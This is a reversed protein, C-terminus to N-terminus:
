QPQSAGQSGYIQNLCRAILTKEEDTDIRAIAPVPLGAATKEDQDRYYACFDELAPEGACAEAGCAAVRDELSPYPGNKTFEINNNLLTSFELGVDCSLNNIVEVDPNDDCVQYQLLKEGIETGKACESLAVLDGEPRPLLYCSGSASRYLKYYVRDRTVDPNTVIEDAPEQGSPQGDDASSDNSSDDESFDGTDFAGDCNSLIATLSLAVLLTAGFSRSM